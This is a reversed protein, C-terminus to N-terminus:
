GKSRGTIGRELMDVCKACVAMHAETAKKDLTEPTAELEGLLAGSPFRSNAGCLPKWLDFLAHYRPGFRYGADRRM